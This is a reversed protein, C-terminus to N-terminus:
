SPGVRSGGILEVERRYGARRLTEVVLDNSLVVGNSTGQTVLALARARGARM